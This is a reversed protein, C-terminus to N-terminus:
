KGHLALYRSLALWINNYIITFTKNLLVSLLCTILISQTQYSQRCSGLGLVGTLVRKQQSSKWGETQIQARVWCYSAGTHESCLFYKQLSPSPVSSHCGETSPLSSSHPVSILSIDIHTIHRLGHSQRFEWLRVSCLAGSLSEIKMVESNEELWEQEWAAM